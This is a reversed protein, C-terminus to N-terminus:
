SLTRRHWRRKEAENLLRFVETAITDGTTKSGAGLPESCGHSAATLSGPSGGPDAPRAERGRQGGEAM